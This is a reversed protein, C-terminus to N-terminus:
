VTTTQRINVSLVPSYEGVGCDNTARVRLQYTGSEEINDITFTTLTTDAFKEFRGNRGYDWFLEYSVSPDNWNANFQNESVGWFVTVYTGTQEVISPVGSITPTSIM